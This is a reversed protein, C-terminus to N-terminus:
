YKKTIFDRRKEAFHILIGLSMNDMTELYGKKWVCIPEELSLDYEILEDRHGKMTVAPIKLIEEIIEQNTKPKYDPDKPEGGLTFTKSYKIENSM